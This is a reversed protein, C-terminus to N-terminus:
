ASRNGFSHRSSGRRFTVRRCRLGLASVSSSSKTSATKAAQCPKNVSYARVDFVVDEDYYPSIKLDFEASDEVRIGGGAVYMKMKKAEGVLGLKDAFEKRILSQNSGSGVMALGEIAHGNATHVKVKQIPVSATGASSVSISSLQNSEQGSPKLPTANPDLDKKKDDPKPDKHLLHHHPKKCNNIDCAKQSRQQRHGTKM